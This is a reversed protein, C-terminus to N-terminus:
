RRINFPDRWVSLHKRAYQYVSLGWEESESLRGLWLTRREVSILTCNNQLRFAFSRILRRPHAPQDTGESDVHLRHSMKVQCPGSSVTVIFSIIKYRSGESVADNGESCRKLHSPKLSRSYPHLFSGDHLTRYAFGPWVKNICLHKKFYLLKLEVPRCMNRAIHNKSLFKFAVNISRNIWQTPIDSSCQERLNRFLTIKGM